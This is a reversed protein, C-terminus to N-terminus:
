IYTEDSWHKALAEQELKQILEPKVITVVSNRIHALSDACKEVRRDALWKYFNVLSDPWYEDKALRHDREVKELDLFRCKELSVKMYTNIRSAEITRRALDREDADNTRVSYEAISSALKSESWGEHQATHQFIARIQELVQIQVAEKEMKTLEKLRLTHLRLLYEVDTQNAGTVQTIDEIEIIDKGKSSEFAEDANELNQGLFKLVDEQTETEGNTQSKGGNLSSSSFIPISITQAVVVPPTTSEAVCSDNVCEFNQWCTGCSGCSQGPGVYKTCKANICSSGIECQTRGDMSCPDGCLVVPPVFTICKGESCTLDDSECIKCDSCAQNLFSRSNEICKKTEWHCYLGTECVSGSAGFSCSQGCKLDPIRCINWKCVYPEQCRSCPDECNEEFPQLHVCQNNQCTFDSSCSEAGSSSSCASCNSYSHSYAASLIAALLALIAVPRSM